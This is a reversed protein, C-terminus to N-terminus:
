FGASLDMKRLSTCCEPCYAVNTKLSGWMVCTAANQAAPKWLDTGSAVGTSCHPGQHRVGHEDFTANWFLMRVVRVAKRSRLEVVAEACRVRRNALSTIPYNAPHRLMRAYRAAPLRYVQDSDGIIFLRVASSM